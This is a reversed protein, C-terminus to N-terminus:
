LIIETLLLSNNKIRLKWVPQPTLRADQGTSGFAGEGSTFCGFHSISWQGGNLSSNLFAHLSVEVGGYTKMTRIYHKILCLSFHVKSQNM